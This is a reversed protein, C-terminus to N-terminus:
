TSSKLAAVRNRGWPLPIIKWAHLENADEASILLAISRSLGLKVVDSPSVARSTTWDFRERVDEARSAVVNVNSIGRTAERLFVAKRQHSEILTVRCESRLIALPIGPFGAGSGVDAIELEGPPLHAGLFLSECYHLRVVDELRQIRTLNMKANWRDLLTYHHELRDLQLVSLTQYPAFERALLDRFESM